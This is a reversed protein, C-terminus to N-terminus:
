QAAATQAAAQTKPTLKEVQDYEHKPLVNGHVDIWDLLGVAFHNKNDSSALPHKVLVQKDRLRSTIRAIDASTYSTIGLAELIVRNVTFRGIGQVINFVAFEASDLSGLRVPTHTKLTAAAPAPPTIPQVPKYIIGSIRKWGAALAERENRKRELAFEDSKIETDM